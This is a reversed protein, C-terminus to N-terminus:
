FSPSFPSLILFFPMAPFRVIIIEPFQLGFGIAGIAQALPRDAGAPRQPSCFAAEAQEGV